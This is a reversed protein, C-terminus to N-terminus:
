AGYLFLIFDDENHTNEYAIDCYNNDFAIYFADQQAVIFM